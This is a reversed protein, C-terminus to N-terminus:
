AALRLDHDVAADSDHASDDAAVVIEHEDGTDLIMEGLANEGFRFDFPEFVQAAFLDTYRADARGRMVKRKLGELPRL